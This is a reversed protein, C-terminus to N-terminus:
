ETLEKYLNWLRQQMENWSFEKVYLQYGRESMNKWDSKRAILRDLALNFEYEFDNNEINLVEGIDYDTVYSDMGTGKVMILPKKVMLAEYFKNPAAYKHNPLTPDYIATILDCFKELRIVEKYPIKGCYHINKQTRGKEQFYNQLVGWGGVYWEIDDRKEIVNTMEELYRDKSLLGVYVIRIKESRQNINVTGNISETNIPTNHIVVIKCPKSDKIQERRLESCVIAANSKSIIYDDIKKIMKKIIRPGAHSESYYDFIDYVIKKKFRKAILFAIFATDFDCAHIIDYKYRNKKLFLYEAIWFKLMLYFLKSFGEGVPAKIGIHFFTIKKGEIEIISKKPTKYRNERDWGLVTVSYFQSLSFVEKELRSDPIGKLARVFIISQKKEKFVKKMDNEWFNQM